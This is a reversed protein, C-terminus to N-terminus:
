GGSLKKKKKPNCSNKPGIPLFQKIKTHITHGLPGFGDRDSDVIMISHEIGDIEIHHLM